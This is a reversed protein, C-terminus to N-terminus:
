LQKKIIFSRLSPSIPELRSPHTSLSTSGFNSLETSSSGRSSAYLTRTESSSRRALSILLEGIDHEALLTQYGSNLHFDPALGDRLQVNPKTYHVFISVWFRVAHHQGLIQKLVLILRPLMGEWFKQLDRQEGRPRFEKDLLVKEFASLTTEEVDDVNAAGGAQDIDQPPLNSHTPSPQSPPSAPQAPSAPPVPVACVRKNVPPGSPEATACRKRTRM